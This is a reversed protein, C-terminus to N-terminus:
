ALLEAVGVQLELLGLDRELSHREHEHVAANWRAAFDPVWVGGISKAATPTIADALTLGNVGISCLSIEKLDCGVIEQYGKAHSRIWSAGLSFAKVIGAKAAQWVEGAFSGDTPRPMVAEIYLGRARDIRAKLVRGIPPLAYKHSWLLVPNTSMYQEVASDLAFPNIRDGARDLDWTSAYGTLLLGEGNLAPHLSKVDPVTVADFSM